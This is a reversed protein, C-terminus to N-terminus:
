TSIPVLDFSRFISLTRDRPSSPHSLVPRVLAGGLLVHPKLSHVLLELTARLDGTAVYATLHQCLEEVRIARLREEFLPRSGSIGSRKLRETVLM